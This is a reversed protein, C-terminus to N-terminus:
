HNVAACRICVDGHWNCRWFRLTQVVIDSEPEDQRFHLNTSETQERLLYLEAVVYLYHM